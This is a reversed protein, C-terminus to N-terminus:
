GDGRGLAGRGQGALADLAKLTVTNDTGYFSPQVIVFRSVGLPAAQSQLAGLPSM